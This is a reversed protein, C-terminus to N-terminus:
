ASDLSRADDKDEEEEAEKAEEAMPSVEDDDAFQIWQTTAPLVTPQCSQRGGHTDSHWWADAAANDM